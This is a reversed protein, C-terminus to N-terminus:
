KNRRCAENSHICVKKQFDSFPYHILTTSLLSVLVFYIITIFIKIFVCSNKKFIMANKETKVKFYRVDFLTFFVWM